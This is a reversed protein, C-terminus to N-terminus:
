GDGSNFKRNEYFNPWGMFRSIDGGRFLSSGLRIVILFRRFTSASIMDMPMEAAIATVARRDAKVGNKRGPIRIVLWL